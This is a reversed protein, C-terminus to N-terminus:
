VHFPRVTADAGGDVFLIQGLLYGGKLGALAQIAEAIVAPSAPEEVAMPTTQFLRERGEATALLYDTMPSVVVGPAIGNLCIGARAWEPRVAQQRIWVALARKTAQYVNRSVGSAVSLVREEDDELCALVLAEDTEMYLSSSSIGIAHSGPRMALLPRLGALTATAGFYNVRVTVDFAAASVGAGAVVLDLGSPAAEGVARIMRERGDDTGLDACIDAEQRDVGIVRVGRATLAERIGMGIGSAAGTVVAVAGEGLAM